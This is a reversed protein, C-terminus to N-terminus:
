RALGDRYAGWGEDHVSAPKDEPDLLNTAQSIIGPFLNVAQQIVHRYMLGTKVFNSPKHCGSCVWWGYKKGRSWGRVRKGKSCGGSGSAPCFQTPQAFLGLVEASEVAERIHDIFIEADENDDFSLVVYRAM